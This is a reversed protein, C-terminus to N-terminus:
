LEVTFTFATRVSCGIGGAAAGEARGARTENQTLHDFEQEHRALRCVDVPCYRNAGRAAELVRPSYGWRTERTPPV